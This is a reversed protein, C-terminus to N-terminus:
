GELAGCAVVETLRGASPHVDVHYDRTRNLKVDTLHAMATAHGDDGVHLLPYATAPGVIRGETGCRGEHIHWPLVGGPTGNITVGARTGGDVRDVTASGSVGSGEVPLVASRWQETPGSGAFDLDIDGTAPNTTVRPSRWCAAVVLAALVFPVRRM